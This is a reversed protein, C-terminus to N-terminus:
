AQPGRDGLEVLGERSVEPGMVGDDGSLDDVVDVEQVAGDSDEGVLDGRTEDRKFSRDSDHGRYRPDRLHGSLHDHGLGSGVHAAKACWFLEAGPCPDRRGASDAPLRRGAPVRCPGGHSRRVRM